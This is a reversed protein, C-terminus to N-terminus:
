SLKACITMDSYSSLGEKWSTKNTARQKQRRCACKTGKLKTEMLTNM